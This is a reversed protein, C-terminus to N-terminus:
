PQVIDRLCDAPQRVKEGRLLRPSHPRRPGLPRSVVRAAYRGHYRVTILPTSLRETSHM